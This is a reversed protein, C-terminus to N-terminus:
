SRGSAAHRASRPSRRSSTSTSTSSSRSARCSATPTSAARSWTRSTPSATPSRSPWSRRRRRARRASTTGASRRGPAVAADRRHLLRDHRGRAADGAAGPRDVGEPRHVGQPHRDPPHRAPARPPVGAREAAVVFFALAVPAPGSITMSTSVEGLAIGDFLREMDDLRPSRSAGRPRGRGLSLPHDPDYGMLTPMDFATSLGTQGQSLLHRFRANTDEPSGFGAFMRMTWLRARYMEPHLGRTYPYEGPAPQPATPAQYVPSLERGSLTAHAPWQGGSRRQTTAM